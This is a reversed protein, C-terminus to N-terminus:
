LFLMERKPISKFSEASDFWHLQDDLNRATNEGVNKLFIQFTSLRRQPKQSM